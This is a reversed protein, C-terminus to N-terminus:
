VIAALYILTVVPWREVVEGTGWDQLEYADEM